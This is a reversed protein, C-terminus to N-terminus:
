AVGAREPDRAQRPSGTGETQELDRLGLRSTEPTTRAAVASVPCLLFPVGSM